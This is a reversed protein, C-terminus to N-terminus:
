QCLLPQCDPCFHASRGGATIRNIHGKCGPKRCPEDKRGYVYYQLQFQGRRLLGDVYDRLSSGGADIALSLVRRIATFLRAAQKRSITHAPQKPHLGSRFLAEDSYINGIGSLFHQDLLLAKIERKRSALGRYFEERPITLPDPGLSRLGPYSKKEAAGLLLVRGFRRPDEFRLEQDTGALSLVLHTHKAREAGCAACYLRGSMGLHFVLWDGSSLACLIYKGERHIGTIAQSRIKRLFIEPEKRLISPHLVCGTKLQMGTLLPRLSRVVTEVEPLEPM